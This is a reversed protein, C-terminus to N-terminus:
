KIKNHGFKNIITNNVMYFWVVIINNQIKNNKNFPLLLKTHYM